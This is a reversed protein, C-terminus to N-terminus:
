FGTLNLGTVDLLPVTVLDIYILTQDLWLPVDLAAVPLSSAAGIWFGGLAATVGGALSPPLWGGLARRLTWGSRAPRHALQADADALIRARLADPLDPATARAAHLFSDLDADPDPDIM